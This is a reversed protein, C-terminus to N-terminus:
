SLAFTCTCLLYRNGDIVSLEAQKLVPSGEAPADGARTFGWGVAVCRKGVQPRKHPLCALQVARDLRVAAELEILAIDNRSTVDEYNPHLLFRKVAPRRAWREESTFVNHRGLLLDHRSLSRNITMIAPTVFFKPLHLFVITTPM